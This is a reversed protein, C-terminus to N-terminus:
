HSGLFDMEVLRQLRVTHLHLLGVEAFENDRKLAVRRHMHDHGRQMQVLFLDGVQEGAIRLFLILRNDRLLDFGGALNHALAKDMGIHANGTCINCNSLTTRDEGHGVLAVPAHDARQRGDVQIDEPNFLQDFRERVRAVDELRQGTVAGALPNGRIDGHIGARALDRGVLFAIGFPFLVKVRHDQVVGPPTLDERLRFEALNVVADAAARAQVDGRRKRQDAPMNIARVNIGAADACQQGMEQDGALTGLLDLADAKLAPAALLNAATPQLDWFHNHLQAFLAHLLMRVRDLFERQVRNGVALQEMGHQADCGHRLPRKRLALRHDAM